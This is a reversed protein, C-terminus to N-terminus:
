PARTIDALLRAYRPDSRLSRLLPDTRLTLASPVDWQLQRLLVFAADVKGFAAYAFALNTRGRDDIARAQLIAVISDAAAPKGTRAYVYALAGMVGPFNPSAVAARELLQRAESYSGRGARVTGLWYLTLAYNPELSLAKTLEIDAGRLDGRQCLIIGYNAVAPTLL